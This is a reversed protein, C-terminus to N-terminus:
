AEATLIDFALITVVCLSGCGIGWPRRSLGV